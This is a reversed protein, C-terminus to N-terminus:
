VHKRSTIQGIFNNLALRVNNPVNIFRIGTRYGEKGANLSYRVEGTLNVLVYKKEKTVVNQNVLTFRLTMVTQPAFNYETLIAMGGESLDLMLAYIERGEVEVRTNLTNNPTFVAMFNVKVRKHKRREPGSYFAESM